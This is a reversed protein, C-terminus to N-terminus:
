QQVVFKSRAEWDPLVPIFDGPSALEVNINLKEKLVAIARFVSDQDPQMKIDIDMTQPRWGLLVACAGGTLYIRGSARAERGLARMFDEVKARDTSDRM